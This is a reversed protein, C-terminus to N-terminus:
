EGIAQRIAREVADSRNLDIILQEITRGDDVIISCPNTVLHDNGSFYVLGDCMITNDHYPHCDEPDQSLDLEELKVDLILRDTFSPEDRCASVNFGVVTDTVYIEGNDCELTYDHFHTCELSKSQWMIFVLILSCLYKM